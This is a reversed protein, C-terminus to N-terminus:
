ATKGRLTPKKLEQLEKEIVSIRTRLDYNQQMLRDMLEMLETVDETRKKM